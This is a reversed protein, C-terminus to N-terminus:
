ELEVLLDGKAVIQESQVYIKAVKGTFDAKVINKMKMAELLLLSDGKKVSQGVNIFIDRITGPIFAYVKRSDAVQYKKRRRFTETSLTEYKTGDIELVVYKDENM